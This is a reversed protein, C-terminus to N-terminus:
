DDTKRPRAFISTLSRILPDFSPWVQTGKTGGNWIEQKSKVIPRNPPPDIMFYMIPGIIPVVVLVLNVFRAAFSYEQRFIRYCAIGFLAVSIFITIYAM